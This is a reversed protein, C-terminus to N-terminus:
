DKLGGDDHGRADLKGFRHGFTQWVDAMNAYHYCAESRYWILQRLPGSAPLLM